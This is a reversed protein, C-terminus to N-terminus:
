GEGLMTLTILDSFIHSSVFCAHSLLYHTFFEPQLPENSSQILGLM